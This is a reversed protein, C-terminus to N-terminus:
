PFMSQLSAMENSLYPDIRLAINPASQGQCQTPGDCSEAIAIGVISPGGCTPCPTWSYFPGGSHGPSVTCGIWFNRHIWSSGSYNYSNFFSTASCGQSMWQTSYACGVPSGLDGCGPYGNNFDYWGQVNSDVTDWWWGLYPVGASPSLQLITWDAIECATTEQTQSGCHNDDWTSEYWLSPVGQQMYPNNRGDAGTNFAVPWVVNGHGDWVCHAATLALQNSFRSATCNSEGGNKNMFLFGIADRPYDNNPVYHQITRTDVGNPWGKAADPPPQNISSQDKGEKHILAGIKAADADSLTLQYTTGDSRVNVLSGHVAAVSPGDVHQRGDPSWGVPPTVINVHGIPRLVPPAVGLANGEWNSPVTIPIDGSLAQQTARTEEVGARESSCAGLTLLVVSGAAYRACQSLNLKM